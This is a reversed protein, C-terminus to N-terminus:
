KQDVKRSIEQGDCSVADCATLDKMATKSVARGKFPSLKIM